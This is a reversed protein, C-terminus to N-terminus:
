TGFIEKEVMECIIHGITIHVEQIRPSKKSPICFCIDSIEKLKGGTGGSFGITKCGIKKASKMARNVNASNGTTSIGIAIDGKEAIGEIQRAFVNEFGYDNSLATIVSPNTSLAIAPLPKRELMFRGVLEAAIHQADAASGGNGFLIVRNDRRFAMTIEKVAMAIKGSLNEGAWKKLEVSESFGSKIAKEIEM